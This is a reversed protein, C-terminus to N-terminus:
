HGLSWVHEPPFHISSSQRTDPVVQVAFLQVTVVGLVDVDVAVGVLAGSSGTAPVPIGVNARPTIPSRV